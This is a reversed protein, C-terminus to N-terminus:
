HQHPGEKPIEKPCEPAGKPDETPEKANGPPKEKQKDRCQEVGLINLTRVNRLISPTYGHKELFKEPCEKECGDALDNFKKAYEATACPDGQISFYRTQLLLEKLQGLYTSQCEAESKKSEPKTDTSVAQEEGAQKHPMENSKKEDGASEVKEEAAKGELAGTQNTAVAPVAILLFGILVSGIFANRKM